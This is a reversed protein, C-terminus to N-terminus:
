DSLLPHNLFPQNSTGKGLVIIPSVSNRSNVRELIPLWHLPELAPKASQRYPVDLLLRAACNQIIQLRATTTQSSRSLTCKWLGHSLSDVGPGHDKKGPFSPSPPSESANQHYRLLNGVTKSIPAWFDLVSGAM